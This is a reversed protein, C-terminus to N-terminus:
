PKYFGEKGLHESKEGTIIRERSIKFEVANERKTIKPGNGNEDPAFIYGLVNLSMDTQYTREEEQLNSINNTVNYSPDFFSEYEYGDRKVKFYNDPGPRRSAIFSSLVENMQQQYETQVVINYSIEIYTPIPVSITEYVIKKNERPKNRDATANAIRNRFADKTAFNSTKEQNIRRSVVYVGDQLGPNQHVPSYFRGRKSIEKSINRREISIVPLILVGDKDRAERDDRFKAREPSAWVIPTKKWGKNTTAFINLDENLWDFVAYDITEITSPMLFEEDVLSSDPVDTYSYDKKKNPPM